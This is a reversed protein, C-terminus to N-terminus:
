GGLDDSYRAHGGFVEIWWATVHERHATSVGGPFFGSLPDDGEVRDYSANVLRELAEGGGAWVYLTKM